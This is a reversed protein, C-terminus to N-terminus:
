PLLPEDGGGGRGPGAGIPARGLALLLSAAARM